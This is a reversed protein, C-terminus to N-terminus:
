HLPLELTEDRGGPDSRTRVYRYSGEAPRMEINMAPALSRLRAAPFRRCAHEAHPGTVRVRLVADAPLRALLERVRADLVPGARSDALLERVILPRAPLDHFQWEIANSAAKLVLTIFGKTEAREALSTREISGPYLVPTALPRGRLDNCLVQRRHIHGSLVAAFGAPLDRGRIVDPATTFTFDGPGVTAGEVCQHMCLLRQSSGIARWGTSELVDAFRDRIGRRQYPFGSVAVREGRVDLTYTRPRDFVHILPHEALLAHPLRAREHNGAVVYVPVGGRAVRLLPAYAQYAVGAAVRPRDFVDGGHVVLDVEGRLAPELAAAYNALFDDGRRRRTVRPNVPLDFGLHTDALLLIRVDDVM